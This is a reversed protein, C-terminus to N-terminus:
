NTAVVPPISRCKPLARDGGVRHHVIMKMHDQAHVGFAGPRPVPILDQALVVPCGSQKLPGVPQAPHTDRLKELATKQRPHLKKVTREFTPTVLIRM